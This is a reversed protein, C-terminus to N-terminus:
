KSGKKKSSKTEQAKAAKAAAVKAKLSEEASDSAKKRLTERLKNGVKKGSKTTEDSKSSKKNPTSTTQAEKETTDSDAPAETKGDSVKVEVPRDSEKPIITTKYTQSDRDYEVIVTEQKIPEKKGFLQGQQKKIAEIEENNIKISKKLGEIRVTSTEEKLMAKYATNMEERQAIARSASM